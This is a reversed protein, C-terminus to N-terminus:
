IIFLFIHFDAHIILLNHNPVYEKLNRDVHNHTQLVHLLNCDGSYPIVISSDLFVSNNAGNSNVLNSQGLQDVIAKSLWNVYMYM